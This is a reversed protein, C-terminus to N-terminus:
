PQDDKKGLKIDTLSRFGCYGGVTIVIASLYELFASSLVAAAGTELSSMKNVYYIFVLTIVIVAMWVTALRTSNFKTWVQKTEEGM